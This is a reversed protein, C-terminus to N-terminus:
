AVGTPLPEAICAALLAFMRVCIREINCRKRFPIIACDIEERGPTWGGAIQPRLRLLRSMGVYRAAIRPREGVSPLFAYRLLAEEQALHV